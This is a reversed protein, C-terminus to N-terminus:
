RDQTFKQKLKSYEVGNGLAKRLQANRKVELQEENAIITQVRSYFETLEEIEETNVADFPRM